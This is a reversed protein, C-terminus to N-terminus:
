ATPPQHNNTDKEPSWPEPKEQWAIVEVEDEEDIENVEWVNEQVSKFFGFGHSVSKYFQATGTYKEGDQIYTVMYTGYMKPLEEEVPTWRNPEFPSMEDIISIVAKEAPLLNDLSKIGLKKRIQEKLEEAIILKM